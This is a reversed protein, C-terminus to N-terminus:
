STSTNQNQIAAVYLTPLGLSLLVPLRTLLGMALSRATLVTFSKAIMSQVNEPQMVVLVDGVNQPIQVTRQM